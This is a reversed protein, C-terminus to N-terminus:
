FFCRSPRVGLNGGQYGLDVAYVDLKRHAPNWRSHVLRTGSKTALWVYKKEDLHKGTEEFYKRQFVLYDELTLTQDLKVDQGKINLTSALEPRETLEQTKHVLVLRPKDVNQSVAGAFSGGAKFNDSEWNGNEMKTKEALDTLPISGPIILMEDFGNQEIAQEIETQNNNWIDRITNEFDPPLDVKTKQYFSLFEQFKAELDLTITEKKGDPHTYSASIEPTQSKKEKGYIKEMRKNLSNLFPDRENTEGSLLAEAKGKLLEARKHFPDLEAIEKLTLHKVAGSEKRLEEVAEDGRMAKITNLKFIDEPLDLDKATLTLLFGKSALIKAVLIRDEKSYEKFTLATKFREDLFEAFSREQKGTQKEILYASLIAEVSGQTMVFKKLSYVKGSADMAGARRAVGKDTENTYSEQIESM